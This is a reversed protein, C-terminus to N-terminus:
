KALAGKMKNFQALAEPNDKIEAFLAEMATELKTRWQTRFKEKEFELTKDKSDQSKKKLVLTFLTKVAQVRKNMEKDSAMPRNALDFSLQGLLDATAESFEEPNALAEKRILSAVRSAGRRRELVRPECYESWFESVARTSTQIGFELNIVQVAKENTMGALLWGVLKEHDADDLHDLKGKPKSM